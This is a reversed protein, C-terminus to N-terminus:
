YRSRSLSEGLEYLFKLTENRPFDERMHWMLTDTNIKRGAGGHRVKQMAEEWSDRAPLNLNIVTPDGGSRTWLKREEPGRQYLEIAAETFARWWEDWSIPVRGLRGSLRLKLSDILGLLHYCERLAPLLDERNREVLKYLLTAVQQWNRRAILSGITMAEVHNIPMRVNVANSLWDTFLSQTLQPFKNFLNVVFSVQHPQKSNINEIVHRGRLIAGELTKELNNDFEPNVRFRRIWGEATANLFAEAVSTSMNQWITERSPHDTLDGYPTRAIKLLLTADVDEGKLMLDILSSVVEQPNRIGAWPSNTVDMSYLWIKRWAEKSADLNLLKNVDKACIDGALKLLREEGIELAIEIVEEDKLRETLGRLGLLYDTNRDVALQRRVADKPACYAGLVVAHLVYWKRNKAFQCVKDGLLEPLAAPCHSVLKDQIEERNAIASSLHDFLEPEEHWWQWVASSMDPRWRSLASKAAQQVIRGWDSQSSELALHILQANELAELKGSAHIHSNIWDEIMERIITNGAIFPSTDLNRLARIDTPQGQKTLHALRELAERKKVVGYNSDPSLEGLLRVLLRVEDAKMSTPMIQLLEFCKELKKLDSVQVLSTHLDALLNRLPEGEPLNLLYAEAKSYSSHIDSKGITQFAAWRNALKEPTSVLTLQQNEVDQPSFAFGFSFNERAEAWLSQWLAAVIENFGDQGIWVLPKKNDQKNLLAHIASGLGLPPPTLTAAIDAASLDPVELHVVALSATRESQEPLLRFLSQLDHLKIVETLNLVLAHTLVMGSRTANADPFTKSIVYYEKFRYGSIYPDWSTNPPPSGYRDTRSKLEIFPVEESTSKVLLAHAGRSEGFIAQHVAVRM